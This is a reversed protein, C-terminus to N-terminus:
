WLHFNSQKSRFWIIDEFWFLIKVVCSFWTWITVVGSLTIIGFLEGCQISDLKVQLMWSYTISSTHVHMHRIIRIYLLRRILTNLNWFVMRLKPSGPNTPFFVDECGLGPHFFWSNPPDRPARCVGSLEGSYVIASGGPLSKNFNTSYVLWKFISLWSLNSCWGWTWNLTVMLFTLFWRIKQWEFTFEHNEDVCSLLAFHEAANKNKRGM